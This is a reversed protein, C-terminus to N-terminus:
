CVQQLWDQTSDKGGWYDLMLLTVEITTSTEPRGFPDCKGKELYCGLLAKLAAILEDQPTKPRLTHFELPISVKVIGGSLGDSLRFPYCIRAGEPQSPPVFETEYKM